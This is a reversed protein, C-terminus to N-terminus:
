QAGEFLNAPTGTKADVPLAYFRGGFEMIWANKLTDGATVANEDVTAFFVPPNGNNGKGVIPHDDVIGHKAAWEPKLGHGDREYGPWRGAGISMRELRSADQRRIPNGGSDYMSIMGNGNYVIRGDEHPVGDADLWDIANVAGDGGHRAGKIHIPVGTADMLQGTTIYSFGRIASGPETIIYQGGETMPNGSPSPRGQMMAGVSLAVSVIIAAVSSVVLIPMTINDRGGHADDGNLTKVCAAAIIVALVGIVALLIWLMSGHETIPSIATRSTIGKMRKGKRDM